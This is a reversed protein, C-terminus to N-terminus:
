EPRGSIISGARCPQRSGGGTVSGQHKQPGGQLPGPADGHPVPQGGGLAWIRSSSFQIQTSASHPAWGKLWWCGLPLTNTCRLFPTPLAALSALSLWTFLYLTSTVNTNLFKKRRSSSHNWWSSSPVELLLFKKKERFNASIKRFNTGFIKRFTGFINWFHESFHKRLIKNESSRIELSSLHTVSMLLGKISLLITKLRIQMNCHIFLLVIQLTWHM